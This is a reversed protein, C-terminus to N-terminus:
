VIEVGEGLDENKRRCVGSPLSISLLPYRGPNAEPMPSSRGSNRHKRIPAPCMGNTIPSARDSKLTFSGPSQRRPMINSGKSFLERKIYPLLVRRQIRRTGPEFERLEIPAANRNGDECLLNVINSVVIKGLQIGALVCRPSLGSLFRCGCLELEVSTKPPKRIGVLSLLVVLRM